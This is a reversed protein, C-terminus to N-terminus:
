MVTDQFLICLVLYEDSQELNGAFINKEIAM